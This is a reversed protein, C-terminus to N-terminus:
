HITVFDHHNFLVHVLNEKARLAPDDSPKVDGSAGTAVASLKTADSLLMSQRSLFGLCEAVEAAHPARALVQEFASQIFQEDSTAQAVLQRALRRSQQIALTSNALALAQQPIISTDRQYCENESPGDFLSLFLMKKEYAHRFYISRRHSVQGANQDIDPGLMTQDLAGAVHLLSDRVTEAEMRRSNARWLWRNDPDLAQQAQGDNATHSARRYADSTVILRHLQKMSWGQEMFQVALWDLLEPHTPPKGNRGFDFVTPVLASGFHRLWIHNVAVRAALPNRRDTIWRGLALRRGSSTAPYVESLSPYESSAVGLAATAAQVAQQAEDLKKKAEASAAATADNAADIAQRAANALQDARLYNEEAQRLAWTRHALSAAQALEAANAPVTAAYRARDAAIRAHLSASRAEATALVREALEDAERAALLATQPDAPTAVSASPDTPSEALPISPDLSKVLLHQFEAQADFTWIALKGLRRAEPLHYTLLLEENVLVNVLRDRVMVRLTYDQNLHALYNKAGESPYSDGTAGHHMVQIKPGGEYASLYVADYDGADTQDFSLGVSKWQKGALTQFRLEASFDAPHPNRTVLSSLSDAVLEQRLYEGDYNWEGAMVNWVDPRAESFSDDVFVQEAAASRPANSDTTAANEPQTANRQAAELAQRAQDRATQAQSLLSAEQALTEDIYYDNAGPYFAQPALPVPQIELGTGLVDPIGPDLPADSAPQAENGRVFLYTAAAADKDYVRPLGDLNTDPQGPLRDMRIQHPEFVARLRYYDTQAIPDYMHDHCRACNITIGLFAKSTHEITNDLWSNRNFLYWNRVLFGTARLAGQDTPALEDASLMERVMQDYGKDANLSEVIWDRWHWIHKQSYRVEAGFGSWDSYRWVDMWHRGWREGHLPSALLSDVVREYADPATDNLFAHLQERTPPLGILDLYIRRLLVQKEASGLPTLGARGLAQDIFADIPNTGAQDNEAHPIAPRVPPRFSWHERPDAPLPEDPAQAGEDIWRRLLSIQDASLPEGEPPMRTADTASIRALLLSQGSDRPVIAPGSDGGQLITSTVDLRLGNQQKLVGHCSYCRRALLPKIQRVYDVPLDVADDARLPPMSQCAVWGCVVAALWAPRWAFGSGLRRSNTIRM